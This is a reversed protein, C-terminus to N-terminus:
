LQQGPRTGATVRGRLLARAVRWVITLDLTATWNEIYRLELRISEGQTAATGLATPGIMGPRVLQLRRGDATSAASEALPPAQPGVLSMSGTLVNILQPLPDVSYRRLRGGVRTSTRDGVSTTRFRLMRFPVGNRGVREERVLAPGGDQRVAIVVAALLPATLLLLLTALSRDLVAKVLRAGGSYRPQSLRLLPMGDVPTIHLRPGAIEMLGPEVSLAVESGELDWALHHLRTQGWGPAPSVAVVRIGTANVAAAVGDLDAVVPVGDVDGTGAPTAAAVVHWGFGPDRRTRRVLQAVSSETGVALVSLMCGGERRQRHLVCRLSHRVLVCSVAVLPLTIFVWTRVSQVHLALGGLGLAVMAGLVGRLVRRYEESGTGLVRAEWARTAILGGIVLLGAIIGVVMRAHDAPAGAGFGALAAVVVVGVIATADGLQVCAVYRRQWPLPGFTPAGLDVPPEPLVVQTPAPSARHDLERPPTAGAGESFPQSLPM